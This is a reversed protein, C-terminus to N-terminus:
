IEKMMEKVSELAGEMWAQKHSFAEGIIFIHKYPHRIQKIIKNSNCNPKWHHCGLTWLHSEFYTPKPIDIQPFLINLQHEVISKIQTKSKLTKKRKNQFFIDIDKNDTYSIMILGTKYDIPIIQRLVNNTIIKPINDFWVKRNKIPYKAYIRLLPAGHVCNIFLHIKNLISFEKLQPAKIAFIVNKGLFDKKYNTVQYLDKMKKVDNVHFNLLFSINPSSNLKNYMRNCLESLGEKLIYFQNSLFDNEFSKISDYANMENIESDYGFIDKITKALKKEKYEHTLYQSFTFKQLYATSHKKSEKIINRMLIDLTKNMDLHQIIKNDPLQEYYISKKSLPIKHCKYKEILNLLLKHKDHFRGAGVEYHPNSHTLIRGGLYNREDCLLLKYNQNKNHLEQLAYLGSIGGGIIIYDYVM